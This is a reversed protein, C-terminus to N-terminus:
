QKLTSPLFLVAGQGHWEYAGIDVRPGYPRPYGEIDMAPAPPIGAPDGANIAASTPLLHFDNLAPAVFQVSATIPHTNSFPSGGEVDVGNANFLTYSLVPTVLKGVAIGVTHSVIVNNVLQATTENWRDLAIAAASNDYFTNNTVNSAIDNSGYTSDASLVVAGVTSLNGAVVNNTVTFGDTQLILFAAGSTARNGLFRNGDITANASTLYTEEIALLVVLGGGNGSNLEESGCHARCTYNAIFDNHEV